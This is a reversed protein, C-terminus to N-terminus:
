AVEVLGDFRSGFLLLELGGRRRSNTWLDKGASHIARPLERVSRRIRGCCRRGVETRVYDIGRCIARFSMNVVSGEVGPAPATETSSDPRMACSAGTAEAARTGGCFRSASSDT